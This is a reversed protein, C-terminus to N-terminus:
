GREREDVEDILGEMEPPILGRREAEKLLGIAKTTIQKTLPKIEHVHEKIFGPHYQEMLLMLSIFDFLQNMAKKGWSSERVPVLQGEISERYTLFCAGINSILFHEIDSYDENEVAREIISCLDKEDKKM